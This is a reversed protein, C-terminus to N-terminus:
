DGPVVAYVDPLHRKDENLDLGYGVLFRSDELEFGVFDPTIEKDEVKRDIIACLKVSKAGKEFLFKKIERATLGTDIIDEVLLIDENKVNMYPELRIEIKGSSQDGIYSKAVVFDIKLPLDLNRVLDAMFIFAGKLIGIVLIEKGKYYKNIEEALEKVKKDIEERPLVKELKM